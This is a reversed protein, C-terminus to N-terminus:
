NTTWITTSKRQPKNFGPHKLQTNEPLKWQASAGLQILLEACGTNSTLLAPKLVLIVNPFLTKPSHETGAHQRKLLVKGNALRKIKRSNWIGLPTLSFPFLKEAERFYSSVDWDVCISAGGGVLKECWLHAASLLFIVAQSLVPGYGTSNRQWQRGKRSCDGFEERKQQRKGVRVTQLDATLASPM